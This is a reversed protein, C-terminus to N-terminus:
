VRQKKIVACVCLLALGACLIINYNAMSLGFLPDVWAIEDCRAAPASLINELMSQPEDSFSPVTCGEVGSSWWHREIGTHYFAIASNAAMLLADMAVIVKLALPNRRVFFAVGGLVAVALFPIRQYICFICPELALFVESFLAISLALIGIVAVFVAVFFPSLFRTMNNTM